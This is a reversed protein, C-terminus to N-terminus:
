WPQLWRCRHGTAAPKRAADATDPGADARIARAKRLKTVRDLDTQDRVWTLYLPEMRRGFATYGRDGASSAQHSRFLLNHAGSGVGYLDNRTLIPAYRDGFNVINTGYALVISRDTSRNKWFNFTVANDTETATHALEFYCTNTTDSTAVASLEKLVFLARKYYAKYSPLEIATAGGSTTVPAQITGTTVFGLQSSTLTTKVRTWM